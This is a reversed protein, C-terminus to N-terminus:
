IKIRLIKKITSFRDKVNDDYYGYNSGYGYYYGGVMGKIDNILISINKIKESDYLDNIKVLHRRNTYNHRVVYIHIDINEQIVLYDSIMGLPASDIIIYDYSKKLLEIMAPVKETGLLESPNPPVPGATIVDLNEVKTSFIIEELTHQNSLYTSLGEKNSLGFDNFIKPKRLDTGILLTKKGTTAIIAALNVSCFTKGEGSISSTIGIVKKSKDSALYQLNARVSRFMESIPSKPNESVVVNKGKDSHGIVGLVPINTIKELEERSLIKDNLFDSIIIILFPIVLGLMLSSTFILDAKPEIQYSNLMSARDLIKNDAKNSAKTIGAEARRELLFNYLHDNLNFKRQLDMLMREKKPLKRLNREIAYIRENQDKLSINTGKIINELNELLMETTNRIKNDLTKLYPNKDTTNLSIITRESKLEILQGILSSLVPDPIGIASPAVIDKIDKSTRIYQLIYDYYKLNLLMSAKEKELEGLKTFELSVENSIDHINNESRFTEIDGETNKLYSSIELLQSDIFNITNTTIKNKEELGKNIYVETLKNLFDIDKLVLPGSVALGLISSEKNIPYVALKNQYAQALNNRDNVIFYLKSDKQVFYPNTIYITFGFNKDKYYQGSILTENLSIRESHAVVKNTKFDYVQNGNIEAVVKVKNNPLITIYFPTNIIQNSSSDLVIKFPSDNYFETRRINGMYYYSVDFDLEMVANMVMDFSRILGIENHLNKSENFMDLGGLSKYANSEDKILLTTSVRYIPEQYQIYIKAFGYALIGAIVFYYWRSFFKYLIGKFDISDEQAQEKKNKV